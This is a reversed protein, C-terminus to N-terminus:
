GVSLSYCRDVLSQFNVLYSTLDSSSVLSTAASCLGLVICSFQVALILVFHGILFGLGSHVHAHLKM